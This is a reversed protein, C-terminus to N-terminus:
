NFAAPYVVVHFFVFALLLFVLSYVFDQNFVQTVDGKGSVNDVLYFKLLRSMIVVTANKVLDMKLM